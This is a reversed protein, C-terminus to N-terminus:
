ANAGQMGLRLTATVETRGPASTVEFTGGLKHMRARMSRM